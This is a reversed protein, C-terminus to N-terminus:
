PWIDAYALSGRYKELERIPAFDEAPISHLLIPSEGERVLYAGDQAYVIAVPIGPRQSYVQWFTEAYKVGCGPLYEGDNGEICTTFAVVRGDVLVPYKEYSIPVLEGSALSYACLRNGLVCAADTLGLYDTVYSNTVEMLADTKSITNKRRVEVNEVTVSVAIPVDGPNEMAVGIKFWAGKEVDVKVPESHTLTFREYANEERVEIPKLVVEMESFGAGAKITLTNRNPSIEEESHIFDEQYVFDGTTGAPILIEVTYSKGSGCGSLCLICSLILLFVTLKKM